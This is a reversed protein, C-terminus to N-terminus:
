TIEVESKEDQKLLKICFPQFLYEKVFGVTVFSNNIFKWNIVGPYAEIDFPYKFQGIRINALPQLKYNIWAQLLRTEQSSILGEVMFHYGIKEHVMRKAGLRSRKLQFSLIKGDSEDNLVSAQGWFFPTFTPEFKQVDQAVAKSVTVFMLAMIFIAALKPIQLKM